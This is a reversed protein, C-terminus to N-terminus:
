KLNVQGGGQVPKYGPLRLQEGNEVIGLPQGLHVWASAFYQGLYCLKSLVQLISRMFRAGNFPYSRTAVNGTNSNGGKQPEPFFCRINLEIYKYDTNRSTVQPWNKGSVGTSLAQAHKGQRRLCLGQSDKCWTYKSPCFSCPPHHLAAWNQHM